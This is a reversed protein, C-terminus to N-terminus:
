ELMGMQVLLGEQRVTLIDRLEKRAQDLDAKLKKRAEQYATLATKIDSASADKNKLLEQLAQRTKQVESQGAAGAGAPGGGMRGMLAGANGDQAMLDQVKAIKPELVQWEEDSAGLTKQLQLNAQKRVDAMIKQIQEPDPQKGNRLDEMIKRGQEIQEPTVEIGRARLREAINDASPAAPRSDQSLAAAVFGGIGLALAAALTFMRGSAM